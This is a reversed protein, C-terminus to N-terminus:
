CRMLSPLCNLSVISHISPCPDKAAGAPRARCRIEDRFWDIVVEKTLDIRDVLLRGLQTRPPSEESSLSRSCSSTSLASINMLKWPRRHLRACRDETKRAEADGAMLTESNFWLPSFIFRIAINVTNVKQKQKNFPFLHHPLPRNIPRKTFFPKGTCNKKKIVWRFYWMTPILLFMKPFFEILSSFLTFYPIEIPQLENPLEGRFSVSRLSWRV